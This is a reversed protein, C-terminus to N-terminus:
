KYNCGDLYLRPRCLIMLDPEIKMSLVKRISDDDTYHTRLIQAHKEYKSVFSVNKCTHPIHKRSQITINWINLVNLYDLIANLQYEDYDDPLVLYVHNPLKQLSSLNSLLVGFYYKTLLVSFYLVSLCKLLGKYLQSPNKM